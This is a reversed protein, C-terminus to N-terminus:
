AGLPAVRVGGSVPIEYTGLAVNEEKGNLTTGVIDAVGQIALIRAEIRSIRVVLSDSDAWEKRLELLYDSVADQILTELMNWGYGVEFTIRTSVCIPVPVASEVRVVHGIPALGYGEGSNREPDLETQIKEKLPASVDAYDFSNVVTVLVSGGVTLKKASAAGYVTSLWAAAEGELTGIVANYWTKVAESPYMEAPRFDGNWVRTVKCGGVGEMQSVKGLYDARNGGFSRDRFSLFYRQRLAETDEEDEGPILLRSLSATQLGKIYEVPIMDGLYENGMSGVTECKVQYVGPGTQEIAVYNMDGAHFRKGTVNINVPTFTGELIAHTAPKPVIGRDKCLLILYERAATDGYSNRILYELEIYLNQLEVATASHTDYILASPRKDLKDSVRGLMRELLKEYTMNEYM